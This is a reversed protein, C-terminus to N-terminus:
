VRREDRVTADRPLADWPMVDSEAEKGETAIWRLSVPGLPRDSDQETIRIQTVTPFPLVSAGLLNGVGKQPGEGVCAALGFVAYARPWLVRRPVIGAIVKGM